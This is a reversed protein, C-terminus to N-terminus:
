SISKRTMRQAVLTIQKLLQQDFHIDGYVADVDIEGVKGVRGKSPYTLDVPVSWVQREGGKNILVPVGALLLNSVNELMLVNVKQRAIFASVPVEKTQHAELENELWNLLDTAAEVGLAQKVTNPLESVQM